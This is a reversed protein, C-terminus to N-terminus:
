SSTPSLPLGAQLWAKTLAVFQSETILDRALLALGADTAGALRAAWVLAWMGEYRAGSTRRVAETGAAQLDQEAAEWAAGRGAERAASEAAAIAENSAARWRTRSERMASARWPAWWPPTAEMAKALRDLEFGTLDRCSEILAVVAATNPGYEDNM